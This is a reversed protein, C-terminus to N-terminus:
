KIEAVNRIFVGFSDMPIDEGEEIQERVFARLTSHHVHEKDKITVPKDGLRDRLWKAYKAALEDDGKGFQVTIDRKIIGDHGRERLWRFADAIRDNPISAYYKTVITIKRGDSLKFELMGAEEMAEPLDNESVARHQEKLSKLNEEAEEILAELDLQREALATIQKLDSM